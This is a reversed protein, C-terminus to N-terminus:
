IPICPIARGITKSYSPGLSRAGNYSSLSQHILAEQTETPTMNASSGNTLAFDLMSPLSICTISVPLQSESTPPYDNMSCFVVIVCSTISSFDQLGKWFCPFIFGM